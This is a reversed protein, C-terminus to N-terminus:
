ESFQPDEHDVHIELYNNIKKNCVPCPKGPYFNTARFGHIQDVISRRMASLLRSHTSQGKASICYRWSIDVVTGDVREINLQLASRNLPNQTVFMRKIGPGIKEDREPHRDVLDKWYKDQEHFDRLQARTFEEADKKSKFSYSGIVLSSM